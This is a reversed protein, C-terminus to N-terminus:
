HGKSYLVHYTTHEFLATCNDYLATCCRDKFATSVFAVGKCIDDKRFIFSYYNLTRLDILM